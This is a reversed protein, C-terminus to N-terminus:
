PREGQSKERFAEFLLGIKEDMERQRAAEQRRLKSHIAEQYIKKARLGTEWLGKRGALERSELEALLSSIKQMEAEIRSSLEGLHREFNAKKLGGLEEDFVRNFRSIREVASLGWAGAFIKSAILVQDEAAIDARGMAFLKESQLENLGERLTRSFPSQLHMQAVGGVPFSLTLPYANGQLCAFGRAMAPELGLPFPHTPSLEDAAFRFIGEGGWGKEQPAISAGMVIEGGGVSYGLPGANWEMGDILMSLRAAFRGEWAGTDSGSSLRRLELFNFDLALNKIGRLSELASGTASDLPVEGFTLRLSDCELGSVGAWLRKVTGYLLDVDEEIEDMLLARLPAELDASTPALALSLRELELKAERRLNVKNGIIGEAEIRLEEGTTKLIKQKKGLRLLHDELATRPLFVRDLLGRCSGLEVATQSLPEVYNGSAVTEEFSGELEDLLKRSRSLEPIGSFLNLLERAHEMLPALEKQDATLNEQIGDLRQRYGSNFAEVERRLPSNGAVCSLLGMEEARELLDRCEKRDLNLSQIWLEMIQIRRKRQERFAAAGKYGELFPMEWRLEEIRVTKMATNKGLASSWLPELVLRSASLLPKDGSLLRGNLLYVRGEEDLSLSNAVLHFGSLHRGVLVWIVIQKYQFGAVLSAALLFLLLFFISKRKM